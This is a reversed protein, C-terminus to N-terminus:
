VHTCLIEAINVRRCGKNIDEGSGGTSSLVQKGEQKRKQFFYM